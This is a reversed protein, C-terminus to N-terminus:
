GTRYVALFTTPEAADRPWRYARCQVGPPLVLLDGPGLVRHEFRPDAFEVRLAGQVVVLLDTSPQSFWAADIAEAQKSVWVAELGEGTFVKGVAGYPTEVVEEAEGRLISFTKPTLSESLAEM